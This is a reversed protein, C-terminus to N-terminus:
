AKTVEKLKGGATNTVTYGAIPKTGLDDALDVEELPADDVVCATMIFALCPGASITSVKSIRLDV